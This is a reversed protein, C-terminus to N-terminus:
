GNAVEMTRARLEGPLDLLGESKLLTRFDEDAFLTRMASTIVLLRDKTEGARSILRRQQSIRHKYLKVLAPGTLTRGSKSAGPDAMNPRKALLRRIAKLKAGRFEGSAYGDSLLRQISENNGNAIEIAVSIPLKGAEIEGILSAEGHKVLHVLGCVYTRQMGLKKAIDAANYGADCLTRVEHYLSANSPARRAINEVLSMLYQDSEPSDTIIAPISSENLEKFAELRGQGCVLDYVHGAEDPARRKSVLIPRKLGVARISGVIQLWVAKSRKRPNVVRIQVLPIQEVVDTNM